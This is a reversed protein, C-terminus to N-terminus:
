LNDQTTIDVIGLADIAGANASLYGTTRWAGYAESWDVTVKVDMNLALAMAQKHYAFNTRDPIGDVPLGGEDYDGLSIINFGYFTNLDGKILAQVNMFDASTAQNDGLLAHLGSAHMLLTRDEKPVNQGDLLKASERIADITMNANAGSINKAVTLTTSSAVLADIILQDERRKLAGAITQVLEEKEDFMIQNNSFIDTLESATYNATTISVPTHSVNMLPIPTHVAGRASALGAGMKNFTATKAGGIDRVRVTNRLAGGASQYAHKVEAEFQTVAANSLNVSM